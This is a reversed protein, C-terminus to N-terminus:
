FCRLCFQSCEALVAFLGELFLSCVSSHVFPRKQVEYMIIQLIFMLVVFIVGLMGSLLGAKKGYRKPCSEQSRRLAEQDQQLRHQDELLRQQLAAQTSM